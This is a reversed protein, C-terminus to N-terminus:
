ARFKLPQSQSGRDVRPHWSMLSQAVRLQAVKVSANSAVMACVRLQEACWRSILALPTLTAIEISRAVNLRTPPRAGRLSKGISTACDLNGGGLRECPHVETAQRGRAGLEVRLAVRREGDAPDFLAIEATIKTTGRSCACIATARGLAVGNM